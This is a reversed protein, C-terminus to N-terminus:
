AGGTSGDPEYGAAALLASLTAAGTAAGTSGNAFMVDFRGDGRREVSVGEPLDMDIEVDPGLPHAAFERVAEHGHLKDAFGNPLAVDYWDGSRGVTSGAPLVIGHEALEGKPGELVSRPLEALFARVGERGNVKERQGDPLSIEYWTGKREVLVREPVAIGHEALDMLSGSVKAAELIEEFQALEIWENEWFTECKARNSVLSEPCPDGTQYQKGMWVRPRRFIFAAGPLFRQRYHRLTRVKRREM